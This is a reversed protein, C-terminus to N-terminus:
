AQSNQFEESKRKGMTLLSKSRIERGIMFARKGIKEFLVANYLYLYPGLASPSRALQGDDPNRTIFSLGM